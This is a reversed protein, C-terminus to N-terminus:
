LSVAPRAATPRAGEAVTVSPDGFALNSAFRGLEQRSADVDDLLQALLPLVLPRLEVRASVASTMPDRIEICATRSREDLTPYIISAMRVAPQSLAYITLQYLMDRPLEHEWLDRYKADLLQEVRARRLIALDPRPRPSRAGRPNRLPDFAMMDRLAYESKVIYGDLNDTLLRTVLAQFFRNMDFLCGPVVV